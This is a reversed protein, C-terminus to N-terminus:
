FKRAKVPQARQKGKLKVPAPISEPYPFEIGAMVTERRKMMAGVLENPVTGKSTFKVKFQTKEDPIVAIETVVGFPPRRYAAAVENVYQSWGKVSTVPLKAYVLEGTLVSDETLGNASILALRRVNRCAKGKGTDASGWENQPCGACSDSQRERAQEHPTLSKDDRGFAYCAPPTPTDPDFKSDFYLNEHIYDVVVVDMKNDKIPQGGISLRGGKFSVFTGSGVLSEGKAADVAFKALEDDWKALATEQKQKVVM